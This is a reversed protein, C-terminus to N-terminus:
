LDREDVLLSLLWMKASLWGDSGPEDVSDATRRSTLGNSPRTTLSCAFYAGGVITLAFLLVSESAAFARGDLQGV